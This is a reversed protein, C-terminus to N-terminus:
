NWAGTGGSEFGDCFDARRATLDFYPVEDPGGVYALGFSGICNSGIWQVVPGVNTYADYNSYFMPLGWGGVLPRGRHWSNDTTGAEINYNAMAHAGSRLSVDPFWGPDEGAAPTYVTGYAFSTAGGDYNIEYRAGLGNTYSHQFVVMIVDDSASIRTRPQYLSGTYTEIVYDVWGGLYSNLAHVSGDTGLYSLWQYAARSSRANWHFDLGGAASGSPSMDTFTTGSSSYDWFYGINNNSDIYGAYFRNNFSDANTGAIVDTITDPSVSNVVHYSGLSAGSIASFQRVRLETYPLVAYSVLVIDGVVAADVIPPNSGGFTYSESWSVGGDTSLNVTWTDAWGVIAFINGSGRHYDLAIDRAATKPSGVRVDGYYETQESLVPEKWSITGAFAAGAFELQQLSAIALGFDGRNWMAEAETAQPQSAKAASNLPELGLVANARESQSLNALLVSEPILIGSKVDSEGDPAENSGSPPVYFTEEETQDWAGLSIAVGGGVTRDPAASLNLPSGDSNGPDEAFAVTALCLVAVVVISRRVSRIM